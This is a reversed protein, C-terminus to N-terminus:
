ELYKPFLLWYYCIYIRDELLECELQSFCIIFLIFLYLIYHYTSFLVYTPFLFSAYNKHRHAEFPSVQAHKQAVNAIGSKLSEM